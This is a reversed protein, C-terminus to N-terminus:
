DEHKLSGAKGERTNQMARRISYGKERAVNFRELLEGGLRVTEKMDMNINHIHQSFGFDGSIKLNRVQVIGGRTDVTIHWYDKFVPYAKRLATIITDHLTVVTGPVVQKLDDIVTDSNHDVMKLGSQINEM